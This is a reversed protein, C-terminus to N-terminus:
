IHILSLYTVLNFSYPMFAFAGVIFAIFFKNPKAFYTPLNKYGFMSAVDHANPLNVNYERNARIM